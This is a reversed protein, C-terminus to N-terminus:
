TEQMKMVKIKYPNCAFYTILGTLSNVQLRRQQLRIVKNPYSEAAQMLNEYKPRTAGEAIIFVIREISIAISNESFLVVVSCHKQEVEVTVRHRIEKV